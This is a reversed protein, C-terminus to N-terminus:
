IISMESTHWILYKDNEKIDENDENFKRIKM